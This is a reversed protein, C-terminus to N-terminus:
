WRYINPEPFLNGSMSLDSPTYSEETAVMKLKRFGTDGISHKLTENTQLSIGSEGIVAALRKDEELNYGLVRFYKSFLAVCGVMM